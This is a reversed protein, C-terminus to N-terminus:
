ELMKIIYNDKTTNLLDWNHYMTRDSWFDICAIDILEKSTSDFVVINLGRRNISYDTGNILIDSDDGSYFGGSRLVYNFTGAVTGEKYLFENSMKEFLREGNNIIGLFSEHYRGIFDTELGLDHLASQMEEDLNYSMDDRVAFFVIYQPNNLKRIYELSNMESQLLAIEKRAQYETLWEDWELYKEDGRHDDLLCTEHLIRGLAKSTKEAGRVNLHNALDCSDQSWDIDIMCDSGYELDYFPLKYSNAFIRITDSCSEDWFYLAPVNFLLLKIDKEECFGVIKEFYLLTKGEVNGEKIGLGQHLKANNAVREDYKQVKSIISYGKGVFKKDYNNYIFDKKELKTWRSHHYLLPFIYSSLQEEPNMASLIAKIKNISLPMYDFTVRNMGVSLYDRHELLSSVDLAVVKLNQNKYAELLKYYSIWMPQESSACVYSTIGYENYIEYPSVGCYVHSSGLFLVDITDKDEYYTGYGYYTENTMQGDHIWVPIFLM